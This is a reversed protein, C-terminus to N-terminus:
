KNIMFHKTYSLCSRRCVFILTQDKDFKSYYINCCFLTSEFWVDITHFVSSMHITLLICTRVEKM